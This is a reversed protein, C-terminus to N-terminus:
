KTEGECTVRDLIEDVDTAEDRIIQGATKEERLKVGVSTGRIQDRVYFLTRDYEYPTLLQKAKRAYEDMLAAQDADLQDTFAAYAERNAKFVDKNQCLENNKDDGLKELAAFAEQAIAVLQKAKGEDIEAESVLIEHGFGPHHEEATVLASFMRWTEVVAVHAMAPSAALLLILLLSRM